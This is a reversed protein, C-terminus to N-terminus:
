LNSGQITAPARDAGYIRVPSVYGLRICYKPPSPYDLFVTAIVALLHGLWNKLHSWALRPQGQGAQRYYTRTTVNLNPGVGVYFCKENILVM